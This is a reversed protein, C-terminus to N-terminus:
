VVSELKNIRKEHDEVKTDLSANKEGFLKIDNKISEVLIQTASLGNRLLNSFKEDLSNIATKIEAKLETKIRKESEMMMVVVKNFKSDIQTFRYDVKILRADINDFKKKIWEKSYGNTKNLAKKKNQKSMKENREYFCICNPLLIAVPIGHSKSSLTEFLPTWKRVM